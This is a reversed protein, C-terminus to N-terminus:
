LLIELAAQLAPRADPFRRAMQLLSSPSNERARLWRKLAGVALDSGWDHRLRVMDILTREPSYLGISLDGLLVHETRGVAFTSRAFQHWTIPARRNTMPHTGRPLAVDTSSPIEDTLDHLALASLLCITAEPKKAAIAVWSATTDDVSGARLFTGPAIREYEGSGLLQDFQYRTLSIGGLDQYSLLDPLAATNM